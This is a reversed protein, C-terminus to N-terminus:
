RKQHRYIMKGALLQVSVAPYPTLDVSADGSALASVDRYPKGYSRWQLVGVHSGADVAISGVLLVVGKERFLSIWGTEAVVQGDILLRFEIAPQANATFVSSVAYNAWGDFTLRGDDTTVTTTLETIDHWQGTEGVALSDAFVTAETMGCTNFTGTAVEAAGVQAEGVNDKDVFGNLERALVNANDMVDRPDLVVGDFLYQVLQVQAM